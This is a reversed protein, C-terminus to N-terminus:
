ESKCYVRPQQKGFRRPREDTKVRDALDGDKDSTCSRSIKTHSADPIPGSILLYRVSLTRLAPDENMSRRARLLPKLLKEM